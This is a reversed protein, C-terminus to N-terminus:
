KGYIYKLIGKVHIDVLAAKGEKSNLWAVDDKNDMFFNETLVAPMITHKLVYFNEEFDPDGDTNDKRIKKGLPTLVEEAAEYLCNALKDAKTLGKSTYASWGTANKWEGNAAANLHLSILICQKDTERAFTNARTARLKLDESLRGLESPEPHILKYKIGCIYLKDMIMGGLVRTYSWEQISNDPSRKGPTNSGHGCDILVLLDRKDM